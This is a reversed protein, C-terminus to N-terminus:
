LFVVGLACLGLVVIGMGVWFKRWDRRVRTWDLEMQVRYGSEGPRLEGGRRRRM